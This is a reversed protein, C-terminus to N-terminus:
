GTERTHYDIQPATRRDQCAVSFLRRTETVTSNGWPRMYMTKGLKHSSRCHGCTTPRYSLWVREARWECSCACTTWQQRTDQSDSWCTTYRKPAGRDWTQCFEGSTSAALILVTRSWPTRRFRVTWHLRVQEIQVETEAGDASEASEMLSAAGAALNSPPNSSGNDEILTWMGITTERVVGQEEWFVLAGRVIANDLEGLRSGLDATTWIDREEFLEAM